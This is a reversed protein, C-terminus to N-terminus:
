SSFADSVRRVIDDVKGQENSGGHNTPRHTTHDGHRPRPDTM